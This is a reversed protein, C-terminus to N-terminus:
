PKNKKNPTFEGTRKLIAPIGLVLFSDYKLTGPDIRRLEAFSCIDIHMPSKWNNKLETRYQERRTKNILLSEDKLREHLGFPSFGLVLKEVVWRSHESKSLVDYYKEWAQGETITRNEWCPRISNYRIRYCDSCFINSLATLVESQNEEKKWDEDSVFQGIAKKLMSYQFVGLAMSYRKVDHIDEYPLNDIECGLNYMRSTYQAKRTDVLFLEEDTKTACFSDVDCKTFILRKEVHKGSRIEKYANGDESWNDVVELEVDIFSNQHKVKGQLSCKCYKPLNCLFEEKELESYIDRNNSVLTIVTRNRSTEEPNTEDYNVFHSYLAVHRIVSLMLNDDDLVIVHLHADEEPCITISELKNLVFLRAKYWNSITEKDFYPERGEAKSTKRRLYEFPQENYKM